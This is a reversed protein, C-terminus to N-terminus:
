QLRRHKALHKERVSDQELSQQTAPVRRVRPRARPRLGRQQQQPRPPDPRTHTDRERAKPNSGFGCWEVIPVLVALACGPHNRIRDLFVKIAEKVEVLQPRLTPVAATGLIIKEGRNSYAIAALGMESRGHSLPDVGVWVEAFQEDEDLVFRPKDRLAELLEGNIYGEAEDEPIGLIETEFERQQKKPYLRKIQSLKM